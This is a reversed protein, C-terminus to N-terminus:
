CPQAGKLPERPVRNRIKGVKYLNGANGSECSREKTKLATYCREMEKERDKVRGGGASFVRTIGNFGGQYYLIIGECLIRLKIVGASNRKDYLTIYDCTRLILVPVPVNNPPMGLLVPPEM